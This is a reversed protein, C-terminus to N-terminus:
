RGTDLAAQVARWFALRAPSLTARDTAQPWSSNSAIVLRRKPDIFIGQGYIGTAYFTGDDLTWWQFGYGRGPIGIDAQKATAQPLWDAPLISRGRIRAGELIFQGFRAYDRLTVGMCCGGLENGGTNTQWFASHEMGAPKWIKESLYDSLHKGTAQMVLAGILNTEGTKYIWKGGPPAERPLRRMYSVTPDLGPDPKHFAFLAVDSKPDAYDENWRIGSTMTLLQRVTVEDYASGKLGPIYATVKDELSRIVGDHLATGVLTSTFSKAVSFSAWRGTASHGLGYKEYRIRGNHLVLLGATYQSQFFADAGITSPLPKGAPLARVKGGAAIPRTEFVKDMHGFAKDRRDQPWFLLSTERWSPDQAALPAALLLPLLSIVYRSYCM